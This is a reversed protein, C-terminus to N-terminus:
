KMPYRRIRTDKGDEYGQPHGDEENATELAGVAWATFLVVDEAPVFDLQNVQASRRRKGCRTDESSM